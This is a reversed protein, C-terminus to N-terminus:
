PAVVGRTQIVELANAACNRMVIPDSYLDAHLIRDLQRTVYKDVCADCGCIPKRVAAYRDAYSCKRM